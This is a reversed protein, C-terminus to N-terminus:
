LCPREAEPIERMGGPRVALGLPEASDVVRAPKGNVSLEISRRGLNLRVLSEDRFTRATELTEEFLVPTGPGTDVCAYTPETPVIRVQVGTRREPEVSPQKQTAGTRRSEDAATSTGAKRGDDDPDSADDGGLLGLVLLFGLVAVSIMAVILGRNSPRPAGPRRGGRRSDRPVPALPQFDYDERPEHNVRYEEVLLHPDVGLLEAYTRLFTKVFTPGPLLGWEENEMARLYKARIKTREEVDAIDLQQRM